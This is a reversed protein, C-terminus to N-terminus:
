RESGSVRQREGEAAVVSSAEVGTTLMLLRTRYSSYLISRKAAGPFSKLTWMSFIESGVAKLDHMAYVGNVRFPYVFSM